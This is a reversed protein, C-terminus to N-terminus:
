HADGFIPLDGPLTTLGERAMAASLRVDLTVAQHGEPAGATWELAAALQLADAARLPHVRLLRSARERAADSPAIEIWSARLLELSEFAGRVASATSEGARELRAVASACEVATGWWVVMATDDKLLAMLPQTTRETVLLPVVASADWFRM